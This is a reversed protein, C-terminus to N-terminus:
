GVVINILKNKVHIIKKIEKGEIFRKVSKEKLAAEEIEKEDLGDPVEIKGRVKGNVQIIIKIRERKLAEEDWNPWEELHISRKGGFREWLEESLFPAFPALLLLFNKFVERLVDPNPNEKKNLYLSLENTLEMMSAIATNFHFRKEIDITVKKITEHLKRRLSKDLEDIKSTDYSDRGKKAVDMYKNFIRWVRNVYRSMGEIGRDTWDADAEPPAIFLIFLREADVGYKKVIEEPSVVNGKSKSMASGNSLVMGQTFLNKFPEKFKAYGKRYLFKTFFRSYLLHLIAHEVGGIYQDVPMWYHANERDFPFDEPYKLANPSTFRLYYWSSCVFTDMTETERIADGGCIPCKTHKWEEATELPSMGERSFDVEKEDPLLVPLDEEPIPVIGCKKCYVVPIPAGWYRQRSILWDRLKYRVSRKGIGREELYEIIKEKAETSHLGSFKGSNVQIGEGTYAEEMEEPNLEEGEPQIVVRIPLNYKRAFEFDRQDHAPVAMIAGTGYQYVIYNAVWIPIKENNLPNIAYANLFLGKKELKTSSREIESMKLVEHKFEEVKHLIGAKKALKEVLPHEPALAMFTVGFLTDPRTTFVRIVEDDGDIPFDVDAGISKGIWNKQMVKVKEPWGPLEDLDNLLDEAFETIKFFWQELDKKIVPTGCRWCKGDIVQENALVTKCTPCYNVPAKKKYALGSKYLEVFFWQTFKYYNPDCTAIERDWDYSIGQEILQSKMKEINKYTWEKPSLNHKIAANEAPLGFADWGMPHLVNYGRMRKYRAVVDGLTYNRVHGMHLPGSPYPFMELVYYKPKSKDYRGYLNEEKWRKRWKEEVKKFDYIEEM